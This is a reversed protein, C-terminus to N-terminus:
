ENNLLQNIISPLVENNFNPTNYDENEDFYTIKYLVKDNKVAFKLKAVPVKGHASTRYLIFSDYGGLIAERTIGNVFDNEPSMYNRYYNKDDDIVFDSEYHHLNLIMFDDYGPIIVTAPYSWAVFGPHDSDTPSGQIVYTLTYSHAQQEYLTDLRLHPRFDTCDEVTDIPVNVLEGTVSDTVVQYIIYTQSVGNQSMENLSSTWDLDV